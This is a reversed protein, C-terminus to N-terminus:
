DNHVILTEKRVLNQRLVQFLPTFPTNDLLFHLNSFLACRGFKELYIRILNLGLSQAWFTEGKAKKLVTSSFVQFKSVNRSIKLRLRPASTHRQRSTQLSRAELNITDSFWLPWLTIGNMIKSSIFLYLAIRFWFGRLQGWFTAVM